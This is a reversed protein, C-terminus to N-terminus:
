EGELAVAALEGARALWAGTTGVADLARRLSPIRHPQGVLWPTLTLGLARGGQTREAALLGAADVIQEAWEPATHHLSSISNVDHLEHSLPLTVLEHPRARLRAPADDHAWDLVYEVGNSALIDPTRPSHTRGPSLWGRVPGGSAEAVAELSSAILEKEANEELEYHIVDSASVGHAVLEYGRKRAEDVIRPCLRCTDADIAVTAPIGRRDLEDFVRFAGVRLGYDKLSWERYDPYEKSPAGAPRYPSAGADFRFTQLPVVAFAALGDGQPWTPMVRGPLIEWEYLDHDSGQRRLPYETYGDSTSM